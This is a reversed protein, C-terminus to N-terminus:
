DGAAEARADTTTENPADGADTAASDTASMADGGESTSADSPESSAEEEAADTCGQGPCDLKGWVGSGPCMTTTCTTPPSLSEGPTCACYEFCPNCSGDSAVDGTVDAGAAGGDSM